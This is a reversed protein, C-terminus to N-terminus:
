RLPKEGPRVARILAEHRAPSIYGHIATRTGRVHVTTANNGISLDVGLRIQGSSKNYREIPYAILLQLNSGRDINLLLDM